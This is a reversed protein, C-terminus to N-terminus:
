SDLLRIYNKVFYEGSFKNLAYARNATGMIQRQKGSLKIFRIICDTMEKVSLPDFLFGNVGEEVIYPNDSVRSCAVPIGCSMAECLVNPFGEYLSPLCFLDAKRYEDRICSTSAHFRFVGELNLNKLDGLCENLYSEALVNGFWDTQVIYGAKVVEGIAAIFRRTNKVERVSGVCVIHLKERERAQFDSPSFYATDVFNTIVILKNRLSPFHANIYEYETRSNTVVDTSFRYLWFKLRTKIDLRQTVSRESVILKFAPFLLRVLCSLMNTGGLYSIVTDPRFSKIERLVKVLKQLSGNAGSVYKYQIRNEELFSKFFHDDHYYIIRVQYGREKLLFALGVLQRQAGGSGISDILCLVKM